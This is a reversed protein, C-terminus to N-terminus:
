NIIRVEKSSGNCPQLIIKSFPLFYLPREGVVIKNGCLKRKETNSFSILYKSIGQKAATQRIYHGKSFLFRLHSSRMFYLLGVRCVSFTNEDKWGDDVKRRLFELIRTRPAVGQRETGGNTEPEFWCCGSSQNSFM